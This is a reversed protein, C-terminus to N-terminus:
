FSNNPNIYSEIGILYGGGEGTYPIQCIGKIGSHYETGFAYQILSEDENGVVRAYCVLVYAGSKEPKWDMWNNDKTWPSVEFWNLPEKTDCAVWRYEVADEENSKQVNIGAQITPYNSACYIGTTSITGNSTQQKENITVVLCKPEVDNHNEDGVVKYWVYYTGAETATPISTTYQETAETATGLAYQMEGGTPTGTVTVLPKETGDYTRNNATVTAPVANAKNITVTVDVNSTANYNDNGAFNAKFTHDGVNGVSQTSDAWSWGEPLAVDALTQGYTATLGTPATPDAKNVTVACTATKDDSTDDATGNTATVTITATGAAVATVLGANSVTAVSTNSSTWTVTKDTANDPAVTATLTETGGVTLTTSEKNLSVGTVAVADPAITFVIKLQGMGVDYIDGSYSVSSSADGTWTGSSWGTGSIDVYPATVEIKTFKGSATTFTGGNTFNKDLFDAHGPAFTIGDKTFSKDWPNVTVIDSANWTVTTDAAYATLSVGPMLGLVLALSLLISLFRKKTKM